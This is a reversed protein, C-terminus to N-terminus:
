VQVVIRKHHELISNSKRTLCYLCYETNSTFKFSVEHNKLKDSLRRSLQGILAFQRFVIIPLWDVISLYTGVLNMKKIFILKTIYNSKLITKTATYTTLQYANYM